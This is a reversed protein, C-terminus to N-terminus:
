TLEARMVRTTTTGDAGDAGRFGTVRRPRCEFAVDVVAAFGGYRTTRSEVRIM